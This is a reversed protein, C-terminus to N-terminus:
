VPYTMREKAPRKARNARAAFNEGAQRGVTQTFKTMREVNREVVAMASDTIRGCRHLKELSQHGIIFM